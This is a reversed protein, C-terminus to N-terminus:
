SKKTLNNLVLFGGVLLAYTEIRDWFSKGKSTLADADNQAQKKSEDLSDILQQKDSSSLTGDRMIAQKQQEIWQQMDYSANLKKTKQIEANIATAAWGAVIATVVIGIIIVILPIVGIGGDKNYSVSIGKIQQIQTRLNTLMLMGSNFVQQETPTLQKGSLNTLFLALENHKSKLLQVERHFADLAALKDPSVNNIATASIGFNSWDMICWYPGGGDRKYFSFIVQIPKQKLFSYSVPMWPGAVGAAGPCYFDVNIGLTQAEAANSFAVYGSPSVNRGAANGSLYLYKAVADSFSKYFNRNSVTKGQLRYVTPAVFGTQSYSQANLNQIAKLDEGTVIEGIHAM